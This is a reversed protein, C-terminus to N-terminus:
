LTTSWAIRRALVLIFNTSLHGVQHTKGVGPTHDYLHIRFFLDSKAGCTSVIEQTGNGHHVDLDVIAVRQLGHKELAPICGSRTISFAFGHHPVQDLGEFWCSPWTTASCSLMEIKGELVRDIAFVVAGVARRAATLFGEFVVHRM